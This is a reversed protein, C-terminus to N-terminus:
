AFINEQLIERLVIVPCVMMTILSSTGHLTVLSHSRLTLMMNLTTHGGGLFVLKDVFSEKTLTPTM